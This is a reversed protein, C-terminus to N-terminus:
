VGVVHCCQHIVEAILVGLLVSSPRDCRASRDFQHIQPDDADPRRPLGPETGLGM